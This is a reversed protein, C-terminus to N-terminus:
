RCFVVGHSPDCISANIKQIRCTLCLLCSSTTRKHQHAADLLGMRGKRRWSRITVTIVGFINWRWKAADEGTMVPVLSRGPWASPADLAEPNAPVSGEPIPVNALDLVTPALDLLSVVEDSSSGPPIKRPWSVLFPVRIVSDIHYPGKGWMGHDGLAEGHDALFMVVTNEELGNTCLADMVRGVQNDLMEILGFYHAACESYYPMSAGMPQSHNGSTRIPTEHM